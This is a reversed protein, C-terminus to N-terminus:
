DYFFARRVEMQAALSHKGTLSYVEMVRQMPKQGYATAVKMPDEGPMVYVPYDDYDFSDCVVIVHTAGQFKGEALWGFIDDQTAPM